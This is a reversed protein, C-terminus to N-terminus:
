DAEDKLNKDAQAQAVAGVALALCSAATIKIM